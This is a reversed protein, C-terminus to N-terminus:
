LFYSIMVDHGAQGSVSQVFDMTIIRFVANRHEKKQTKVTKTLANKM